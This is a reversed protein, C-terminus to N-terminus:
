KIINRVTQKIKSQETSIMYLEKIKLKNKIIYVNLLLESLYGYIRAESPTYHSLDVNKELEFLIDFLWKCYDNFITRKCIMINCYNGYKQNCFEDFAKVYDPKIDEIIKRTKILDEEKGAGNEFYFQYVSKNFKFKRPVIMDYNKLITKCEDISIINQINPVIKKSLFRRYHCLGVVDDKASKYNKWIWYLATLECYNANKDSINDGNNDQYAYGINGNKNCNVQIYDYNKVIIENTKKHTVIFIKSKDDM